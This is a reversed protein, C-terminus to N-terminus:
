ISPCLIPSSTSKPYSTFSALFDNSLIVLFIMSPSFGDFGLVFSIELTFSLTSIPSSNTYPNVISM